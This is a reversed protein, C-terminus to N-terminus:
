HRQRGTENSGTEVRCATSRPLPQPHQPATTTTTTTTATMTTTTADNYQLSNFGTFLSFLTLHNFSFLIHVFFLKGLAWVIIFTM